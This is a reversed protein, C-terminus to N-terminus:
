VCGFVPLKPALAPFGSTEGDLSAFDRTGAGSSAVAVTDNCALSLVSAGFETTCVTGPM